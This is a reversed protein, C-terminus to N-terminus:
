CRKETSILAQNMMMPTPAPTTKMMKIIMIQQMQRDHRLRARLFDTTESHFIISSMEKPPNESFNSLILFNGFTTFLNQDVSLSPLFVVIRQYFMKEADIIKRNSESGFFSTADSILKSHFVTRIFDLFFRVSDKTQKRKFTEQFVFIRRVVVFSKILVRKKRGCKWHKKIEKESSKSEISRAINTSKFLVIM